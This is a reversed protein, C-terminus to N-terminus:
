LRDCESRCSSYNYDTIMFNFRLQLWNFKFTISGLDIGFGDFYFLNEPIAVIVFCLRGFADFSAFLEEPNSAIM